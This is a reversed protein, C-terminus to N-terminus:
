GSVACPHCTASGSDSFTQGPQPVFLWDYGTPHLTLKLAGFAAASLAESNAAPARPAYLSRGGTGITFQRIGRLPDALGAPTQPAFREYLHDHGALVVDAGADYLAQWIPQM